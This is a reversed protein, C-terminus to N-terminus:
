RLALFRLHFGLLKKFAASAPISSPWLPPPGIQDMKSLSATARSVHIGFGGYTSMAALKKKLALRSASSALFITM